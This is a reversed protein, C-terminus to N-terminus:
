LSLAFMHLGIDHPDGPALALTCEWGRPVSPHVPTRPLRDVIRKVAAAVHVEEVFSLRGRYWLDAVEQQAAHLLGAFVATRSGTEELTRAALDYAEEEDGRLLAGLLERVPLRAATGYRGTNVLM